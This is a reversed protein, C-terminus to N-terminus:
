WVNGVRLCMEANQQETLYSAQVLPVVVEAEMEALALEDILNQEEIDGEAQAFLGKMADPVSFTDNVTQATFTWPLKFLLLPVLFSVGM